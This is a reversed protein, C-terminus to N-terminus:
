RRTAGPVPLPSVELHHHKRIKYGLDCNGNSDFTLDTLSKLRRPEFASPYKPQHWPINAEEHELGVEEANRKSVLQHDIERGNPNCESGPIRDVIKERQPAVFNSPEDHEGETGELHDVEDVAELNTVSANGKPPSDDESGSFDLMSKVKPILGDVPTRASPSRKLVLPTHTLSSNSHISANDSSSQADHSPSHPAAQSQGHAQAQREPESKLDLMSRIPTHLGEEAVRDHLSFTNKRSPAQSNTASSYGSSSGYSHGQTVFPNVDQDPSEYLCMELGLFWSDKFLNDLTYRNKVSPDCLKWAVRAASTSQFQAAWKFESGPGKGPENCDRFTPHNLSFREHSFKYDRYGHDAPSALTFPVGGYVICFLLMGLSWSDMKFPDYSWNRCEHHSMDKLKMVEPPSYPPSGVYSHCKKVELTFDGPITHGYESVGFDCIKAMGNADILINEPKMDRHVIDSDHIFKLGYAIQKFLCFKENLPGRKWGPKVIMNFLDGGNCYELVFGWGRTVNTLSPIRVIALTDVIHRHKALQKSIIFEKISRHYFEDDTEKSLLSFKKLAFVRKKHQAANILMVDASGGFGLKSSNMDFEFDDLLNVHEQKMDDPLFDNPDRIPNALVKSGDITGALYFSTNRPTDTPTKNLGFPNYKIKEHSNMNSTGASMPAHASPYRGGTQLSLKAGAATPSTGSHPGNRKANKHSMNQIHAMTAAKSLKKPESNDAPSRKLSTISSTRSLRETAEDDKHPPENSLSFFKSLKTHSGQHSESSDLVPSHEKRFLHRISHHEKEKNKPM